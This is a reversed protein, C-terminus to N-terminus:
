CTEGIHVFVQDAKMVNTPIIRENIANVVSLSSLKPLAGAETVM